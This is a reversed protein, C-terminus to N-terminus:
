IYIYTIEFADANNIFIVFKLNNWRKIDIYIILQNLIDSLKELAIHYLVNVTLLLLQEIKKKREKKRHSSNDFINSKKFGSSFKM